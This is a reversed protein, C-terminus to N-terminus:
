VSNGESETLLQYAELRSGVGMKTYAASLHNKVTQESISLANAIEKNHFGKGLLRLVERERESLRFRWASQHDSDEARTRDKEESGSFEQQAGRNLLKRAVAPSIQMTGTRIARLSAVLEDTPINKLLYGLAGYNLASFVYEDDDFTTLMVVQTEQYQERIIRTAEVGDMGPMRVDMLVVEPREEDVLKVAQWGDMAIGCVRIDDTAYELVTKLSDVFLVQDDALVVRM